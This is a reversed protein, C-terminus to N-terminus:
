SGERQVSPMLGQELVANAGVRRVADLHYGCMSDGRYVYEASRISAEAILGDENLRKCWFCKM